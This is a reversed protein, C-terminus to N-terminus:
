PAPCRLQDGLAAFAALLEATDNASFSSAGSFFAAYELLDENFTGLSVGDGQVAVGFILLEPFTLKLQEIEFMSNALTEGDFTGIEPNFNGLWAVQGYPLFDGLTDRLSIAQIEELDYADPGRGAIDINPIGDTVLVTRLGHTADLQAQFLQLTERLALPTPTTSEPDIMSADFTDILSRVASFDTTLASMVEVGGALNEAVTRFGAFTVLAVRTGDGRAELEDVLTLLAQKTADIRNGAGPFNSTMSGSLDQLLVVDLPQDPDCDVAPPPDTPPEIRPMCVEYDDFEATLLLNADYSAADLGVLLDSAMDITVRGNFAGGPELWTFGGDLSYFASFMDGRREIALRVPLPVDLITLGFNEAVGNENRFEFQLATTVPDPLHPIFNVMVRPSVPDLSERVMLGAKRVAGGQDVPFGTVDIEARFDGGVTQNLFAGNDPGRFLSTGNGTLLLRGAAEVAGGDNADGLLDFSWDDLSGDGFDDFVCVTTPPSLDRERYGFDVELFVEGEDVTLTAQHTTVVGDLDYTAVDLDAPLTSALVRVTYTGPDVHQFLYEGDGSTITSGVLQGQDDFLRVTVDNIGPEDLDQEGDEDLDHWVRDGISAGQCSLDDGISAVAALLETTDAASFFSGGTFFAAYEMIDENFTGLGVGDGQLAVSYILLDPFALKLDELTVMTNALTEGDFTGLTPNFAGQWAVEAWSRFGGSAEKIVIAQVEELGYEDNVGEGMLDINPIGDSLFVVSARKSPDHQLDFLQRVKQFALPTPTTTDPSITTPDVAQVLSDVFDGDTTFDSAIVSGLALNEIPTRFGSFTVLSVRSGDGRAAVQDTIEDVATKIAGLRSTSGPYPFTMSGSLDVLLTLDLAQDPVCEVVPPPETPPVMQPGCVSYDDFSATLLVDADYSAADLGALVPGPGMDIQVSGNFAGGPLEWTAGGDLSYFATFVSGVKQIAVRVPLPIGLLTLGFNQALGTEDRYEFQLATTEPDPLHPIYNVMVRPALPDLDRRVMLGAKRVAGGADVPFGTINTEVRFNGSQPQYLFAGNDDSRFLSTGNGTLQLQGGIEVAGGADADGLFALTWDDLTGDDFPDDFCLTSPPGFDPADYGFDLDLRTEGDALAVAARDLSSLGDLDYTPLDLGSPLTAPAVRVTYTAAPLESFQYEGDGVTTTFTLMSGDADLLEVRVGALGPEGLDQVGDRDQDHWVRDGLVGTGVGSCSLEQDLEEFALLLEDTGNASYSLAGTFYAGYDLLDENFTGLDVGNGQLALGYILLDPFATKLTEIQFMSNALTEGDFTGISPNFNGRWGVTSWSLFEGMLNRLRISQVEELDYEDPGRGEIDINPVGDTVKVVVPRHGPLHDTLLLELTRQLALATPTTAGPDLDDSRFGQVLSDIAAYDTTFGSQIVAGAALNEVVTRFGSFTVLAARSGDGRAALNTLLSALGAQAAQLRDKSGPFQFTMSGSLDLLIVLDLPQSVDCAVTPPLETPPIGSPTCVSFNDFAATMLTTASYSAAAVGVRVTDGMNIEVTGAQAGSPRQWVQGGDTSYLATYINGRKEIALRVPLELGLVNLGFNDAFGNEDIFEFQLATTEPDEPFHPIVNIMVRAGLPNLDQRFMLGAKHLQGGQDLPFGTVDVEARFDGSVTQHVFVANDPGRFLSTGNATVELEGGVIQAGGQNANGLFSTTWASLDGEFPDDACVTTEQMTETEETAVPGPEFTIGGREPDVFIGNGSPPAFVPVGGIVPLPLTDGSSVQGGGSSGQGLGAAWSPSLTTVMSLLVILLLQLSRKM